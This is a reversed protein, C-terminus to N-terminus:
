ASLFIGWYIEIHVNRCVASVPSSSGSEIKKEKPSYSSCPYYVGVCNHEDGQHEFGPGHGTIVLMQFSTQLHVIETKKSVQGILTKMAVHGTGVALWAYQYVLLGTACFLWGSGSSWFCRQTFFFSVYTPNIVSLHLKRISWATSIMSVSLSLVTTM